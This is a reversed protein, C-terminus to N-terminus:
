TLDGNPLTLFLFFFYQAYVTKQLFPIYFYKYDIKGLFERLVKGM